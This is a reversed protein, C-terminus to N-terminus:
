GCDFDSSSYDDGEDDLDLLIQNGNLNDYNAAANDWDWETESLTDEDLNDDNQIQQRFKPDLDEEAMLDPFTFGGSDTDSASSYDVEEEDLEFRVRRRVTPPLQENFFDAPEDPFGNFSENDDDQDPQPAEDDNSEDDADDEEDSGNALSAIIAQEEALEVDPEDDDSDSIEDLGAYDDDDSALSSPAVKTKKAAVTKTTKNRINRSM